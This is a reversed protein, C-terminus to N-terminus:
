GSTLTNRRKRCMLGGRLVLGWPDSMGFPVLVDIRQHVSRLKRIRRDNAGESAGSLDSALCAKEASWILMGVSMYRWLGLFVQALIGPSPSEASALTDM